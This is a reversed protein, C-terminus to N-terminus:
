CFSSVSLLSHSESNFGLRESRGVSLCVSAIGVSSFFSRLHFESWKVVLIRGRLLMGTGRCMCISNQNAHKFDCYIGADEFTSVSALPTVWNTSHKGLLCSAWLKMKAGCISPMTTCAQWELVQSTPVPIDSTWTMRLQVALKFGALEFFFSLSLNVSFFVKLHIPQELGMM